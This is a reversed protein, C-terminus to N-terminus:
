EVDAENDLLRRLAVNMPFELERNTKMLWLDRPAGRTPWTTGAIIYGGATQRITHIEGRYHNGGANRRWIEQGMDDVKIFLPLGGTSEDPSTAAALFYGLDPTLAVATISPVGEQYLHRWVEQGSADIKLLLGGDPNHSSAALVYGGDPLLGLDHSDAYDSIPAFEAQWEMAGLRNVKVLCVGMSEAMILCQGSLVYGGESTRIMNRVRLPNTTNLESQWGVAGSGDFNLLHAAESQGDVSAIGSVLVSQLDWDQIAVGFM